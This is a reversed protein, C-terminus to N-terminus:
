STHGMMDNLLKYARATANGVEMRAIQLSTLMSQANAVDALDREASLLAIRIATLSHLSRSVKGADDDAEKADSSDQRGPVDEEPTRGAREWTGDFIDDPKEVVVENPILPQSVWRDQGLFEALEDSHRQAIVQVDSLLASGALDRWPSELTGLTELSRCYLKWREFSERDYNLNIRFEQIGDSAVSNSRGEYTWILKSQPKDM